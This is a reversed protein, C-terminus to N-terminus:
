ELGHSFPRMFYPKSCVSYTSLVNIVETDSEFVYFAVNFLFGNIGLHGPM